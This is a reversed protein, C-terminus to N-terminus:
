LLLWILECPTKGPNRWRRVPEGELYLSDGSRLIVEEGELGVKLVGKVVWGFEPGKHDFFSRKGESEAALRLLFPAAKRATGDEPLLPFGTAGGRLSGKAAGQDKKKHVTWKRSSDGPGPGRQFFGDLSCGLAQSLGLLVPLSPQVQDSEIQCLASPTIQLLRALEAQSLDRGM